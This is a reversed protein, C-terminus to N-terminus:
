PAVGLDLGRAVILDCRELPQFREWELVLILLLDPLGTAHEAFCKQMIADFLLATCTTHLDDVSRRVGLETAVHGDFHQGVGESLSASAEFANCSLSAL